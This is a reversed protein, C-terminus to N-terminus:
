TSFKLIYNTFRVGLPTLEIPYNDYAGATITPTGKRHLLNASDLEGILGMLLSPSFGPFENKIKSFDMRYGSSELIIKKENEAMKVAVSLVEIAGSSLNEVCRAFHDLETYTLKENDGEKLLINTVLNVAAHIKIESHSRVIALYSTKFLEAFQDKNVNSPDLRGELKILREELLEIANKISKETATPIYDGILSAVSGGVIPIASVGSKFVALAHESKTKSSKM